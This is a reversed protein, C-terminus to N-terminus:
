RAIIRSLHSAIIDHASQSSNSRYIIQLHAPACTFRGTRTRKDRMLELYSSFQVAYERSLEIELYLRAANESVRRHFSSTQERMTFKNSSLCRRTEKTVGMKNGRLYFLVVYHCDTANFAATFRSSSDTGINSRTEFRYGRVIYGARRFHSIRFTLKDVRYRFTMFNKVIGFCGSIVAWNVRAEGLVACASERFEYVLHM